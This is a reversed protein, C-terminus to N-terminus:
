QKLARNLANAKSQTQSDLQINEIVKSILNKYQIKAELKTIRGEKVQEQIFSLAQEIEPDIEYRHFFSKINFGFIGIAIYHVTNLTSMRIKQLTDWFPSFVAIIGLLSDALPLYFSECRQVRELSQISGSGVATFRSSAMHRPWVLDEARFSPVQFQNLYGAGPKRM